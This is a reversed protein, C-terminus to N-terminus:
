WTKEGFHRQNVCMSFIEDEYKYKDWFRVAELLTLFVFLCFLVFCGNLHFCRGLRSSRYGVAIKMPILLREHYKETHRWAVSRGVSVWKPCSSQMVNCIFAANSVLTAPVFSFHHVVYLYHASPMRLIPPLSTRKGRLAKKWSTEWTGLQNVM